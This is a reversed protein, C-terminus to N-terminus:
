RDNLAAALFEFASRTIAQDYGVVLHRNAYVSKYTWGMRKAMTRPTHPPVVPDGRAITVFVKADKAGAVPELGGIPRQTAPLSACFGYTQAETGMWFHRPKSAVHAAFLSSIRKSASLTVDACRSTSSEATPAPGALAVLAAGDGDSADNLAVFLSQPDGDAIAHTAARAITDFDIGEGLRGLRLNTKFRSLAKAVNANSPCSLHSACWRMATEVAAQMSELQREAQRVMSVSPDQPADLIAASVRGPYSMVLATAVTAGSGWGLVAAEDIGLSTQVAIVDDMEDLASLVNVDTLTVPSDVTGRPSVAIVTYDNAVAGLALPASEVAERASYGYTRDPLLFLVPASKRSSVRRYAAVKITEGEVDSGIRPVDIRACEIDGCPLWEVTPAPVTDTGTTTTDSGTSSSACASLALSAVVVAGCLRRINM